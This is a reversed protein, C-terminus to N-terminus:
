THSSNLRTSKRDRSSQHAIVALLENGARPEDNQLRDFLGVGFFFGVPADDLFFNAHVQLAVDALLGGFPGQNKRDDEFDSCPWRELAEHSQRTFNKCYVAGPGKCAAQQLSTGSERSCDEAM